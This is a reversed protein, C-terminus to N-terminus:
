ADAVNAMAGAPLVFENTGLDAGIEAIEPFRRRVVQVDFLERVVGSFRLWAVTAGSRTDIIWVGASREDVDTIPVGDFLTERVESLGVIAYPGLFALGRAFGPVRAITEIAGSDRDVVALEGKGSELVYLRDGVVRPSHPMCLGSAVVEGSAVDVIVGGDAKGARWGHEVDTAGLATVYRPEGDVMALGNLHCRDDAALASVFPPRWRPHFSADPAITCLCSFRTNVVWVEGGTGIAVEHAAIDGTVHVTRPIYVADVKGASELAAAAAPQDRLDVIERETALVLRDGAVALGMPRRFARVHTNAVGGDARILVVRGTQYTTVAITMGVDDLLAPLSSTHTSALDLTATPGSARTAEVSASATRRRSRALPPQAHLDRARIAADAAISLMDEVEAANRRWKEPDPAGLSHRAIPLPAPLERDWELEVFAALRRLERNPNDVLADFSAICWRHPELAELDDLATTLANEWQHAVIESLPRGRLDRWGRTLLLSWPLGDWDPLDPYTVFKGSRWADLASSLTERPDRYLLVFRADPYAAALFPMRLANKPTKELFRIREGPTPPRADRDRAAAVFRETLAAVVDNSADNADLGNSEWGRAAPTLRADAEIIHHSEGGVTMVACAQTLAEFLMTSGSRPAAIIFVPRDLQSEPPMTVASQTLAADLWQAVDVDDIYMSGSLSEITEVLRERLARYRDPREGVVAWRARWDALVPELADLVRQADPPALREVLERLRLRQEAPHQVKGGTSGELESLAAGDPAERGAIMAWLAASGVTDIVLHVRASSGSNTVRHRRTTDFVWVDGTAMRVSDDGCHFVVDPSSTIPVHVRLRDLWYPHLDVHAEAEAGADIRMLRTRGIPAHLAELVEQVAPLLALWETPAMAGHLQDDTDDGDPAILAVAANGAFGQPHPRWARAPLAEIERALREADARLPLRILPEAL